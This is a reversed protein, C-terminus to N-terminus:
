FAAGVAVLFALFALAVVITSLALM